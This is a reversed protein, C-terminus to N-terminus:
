APERTRPSLAVGTAGLAALGTVLLALATPTALLALLAGGLRRTYPQAVLLGGAVEALGVLQM